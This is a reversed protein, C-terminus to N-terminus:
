NDEDSGTLTGELDSDILLAETKLKYAMASTVVMTPFYPRCRAWIPLGTTQSLHM